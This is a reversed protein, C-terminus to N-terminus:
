TDRRTVLRRMCLRRKTAGTTNSTARVEDGAPAWSGDASDNQVGAGGRGASKAGSRSKVLAAAGGLGGVASACCVGATGDQIASFRAQSPQGFRLTPLAKTSVVTMLTM